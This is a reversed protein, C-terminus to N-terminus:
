RRGERHRRGGAPRVQHVQQRGDVRRCREALRRADDAGHGVAPGCRRGRARATIGRRAGPRRTRASEKTTLNLFREIVRSTSDRVTIDFIDAPQVGLRQAVAILNPDNTPRQDVRVRLTNGWAGPSSAVLHLDKLLLTASRDATAGPDKFLRVIVALAGGNAFFDRVAYSMNSTLSLGGFIREYDSWSTITTAEDVPGRTAKGIFATISTAVGTITRVGSSIEEVYVGPYSVQVPM